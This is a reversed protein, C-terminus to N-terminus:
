NNEQAKRIEELMEQPFLDGLSITMDEKTYISPIEESKNERVVKRPKRASDTREGKDARPKREEGEAREPKPELVRMSISMRRKEPELELIKAEIEDGIKLVDEVKEVRKRSIQSIHLIAEVKPEVAVIAGFTTFRIVKGKVIDGVAYRESVSEWPHPLLTRRNLSIRKNDKDIAVIKAEVEDGVNLVDSVNKLNDWCIESIHILGDFLGLDVFAGFSTINKVKGKIIDGVNHTAWFQEEKKQREEMAVVKRSAVARKTQPDVDIFKVKLEKGVYSEINKVFHVALHSAPIFVRHHNYTAVAGGKVAEIVKVTVVADEEKLKLIEEWAAKELIPKRSLVVNGDGDNLSVIEVEVTEGPAVVDQLSKGEPIEFESKPIIGDAKYGLNVYAASDTVSIVTGTVYQGNRLKKMTKEFGEMTEKEEDAPKEAAEETEAAKEEPQQAEQEAEAAEEVKEAAAEVAQVTEQVAEAAAEVAEEAKAAEEAVAKQVEEMVETGKQEESMKEIVEKIVWDPTSAGAVIGIKKSGEKIKDIVESASQVAFTNNCYRKCLEYLSRTNSSKADGVVLMCDVESAIREAEQQRQSTAICITNYVEADPAYKLIQETVAHFHEADITTQAVVCLKKSKQIQTLIPIDAIDYVVYADNGAWDKIGVVEPHDEKGVILITYGKEAFNRVLDHIKKVNPCTADVVRLGMREAMEYVASGVGHSRIVVVGGKEIETLSHVAVVGKEALEDVVISNHIIPGLTYVRKGNCEAERLAIDVARKVGYCFGSHKGIVIEM